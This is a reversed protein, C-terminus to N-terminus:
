ILDDDDDDDDLEDEDEDFYYEDEMRTKFEEFVSNLEDEDEISEFSDEGNEDKILKMIVVSDEDDDDLEDEDEDYPILVVYEKGDLEITDLYEFEVEEGDDDVLVLINDMEENM